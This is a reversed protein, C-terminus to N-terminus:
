RFGTPPVAHPARPPEPEPAPYYAPPERLAPARGYRVCYRRGWADAYRHVRAKAEDTLLLAFIAIALAASAILRALRSM